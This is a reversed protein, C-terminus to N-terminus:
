KSTLTVFQLTTSSPDACTQPAGSGLGVEQGSSPCHPQRRHGFQLGLVGLREGLGHPGRACAATKRCFSLSALLSHWSSVTAANRGSGRERLGRELGSHPTTDTLAMPPASIGAIRRSCHGRHPHGQCLMGMCPQAKEM